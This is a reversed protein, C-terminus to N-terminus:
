VPLERWDLTDTVQDVTQIPDESDAGSAGRAVDNPTFERDEGCM